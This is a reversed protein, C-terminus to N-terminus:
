NKQIKLSYCGNEMGKFYYGLSPHHIPAKTECSELNREAVYTQQVSNNVLVHYWPQDKPPQSSAVEKYWADSGLFKYDVDIIVGRYDFMQHQVVQGIFFNAKSM